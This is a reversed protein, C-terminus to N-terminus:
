GRERNLRVYRKKLQESFRKSWLSADSCGQKKLVWFEGDAGYLAFFNKSEEVRIESLSLTRETEEGERRCHVTIEEGNLRFEYEASHKWVEAGKGYVARGFGYSLLLLVELIGFLVLIVVDLVILKGLALLVVALVILILSGVLSFWFKKGFVSRNYEAATEPGIATRNELVPETGQELVTEEM